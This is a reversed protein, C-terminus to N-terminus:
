ASLPDIPNCDPRGAHPFPAPLETHPTNRVAPRGAFGREPPALGGQSAVHGPLHLHQLIGGGAQTLGMLPGGVLGVLEGGAQPLPLLAGLALAEEATGGGVGNDVQLLLLRIAKGGADVKVLTAKIQM